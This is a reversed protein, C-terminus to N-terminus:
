TIYIRPDAGTRNIKIKVCIRALASVVHPRDAVFLSLGQLASATKSFSRMGLLDLRRYPETWGLSDRPDVGIAQSLGYPLVHAVAGM